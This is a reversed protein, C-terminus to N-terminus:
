LRALSANKSSQIARLKLAKQYGVWCEHSLSNTRALYLGLLISIPSSLHSSIIYLDLFAERNLDFEILFGFEFQM